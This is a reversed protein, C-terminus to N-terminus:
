IKCCPSLNKIGEIAVGGAVGVRCSPDTRKRGVSATARVRGSTLQCQNTVRGVAVVDGHTVEGTRMTVRAIVIYINAVLANGALHLGDAAARLSGLHSGENSADAICSKAGAHQYPHIYGTM